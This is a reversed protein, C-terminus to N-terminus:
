LGWCLDYAELTNEWFSQVSMPGESGRIICESKTGHHDGYPPAIAMVSPELCPPVLSHIDMDVFWYDSVSLLSKECKVWLMGLLVTLGHNYNFTANYAHM